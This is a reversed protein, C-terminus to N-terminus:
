DGGLDDRGLRECVLIFGGPVRAVDVRDGREVGVVRDELKVGAVAGFHASAVRDALCESAEEGLKWVKVEGALAQLNARAV